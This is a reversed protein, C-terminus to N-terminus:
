QQPKMHQRFYDDTMVYDIISSEDCDEPERQDTLLSVAYNRVRQQSLTQLSQFPSLKQIPASQRCQVGHYLSAKLTSDLGPVPSGHPLAEPVRTNYGACTRFDEGHGGLLSDITFRRGDSSLTDGYCQPTSSYRLTDNAQCCASTDHIHNSTSVPKYAGCGDNSVRGEVVPFSPNYSHHYKYGQDPCFYRVHEGRSVQIPFRRMPVDVPFAARRESIGLRHSHGRLSSREIFDPLVRSAHGPLGCISTGSWGSSTSSDVKSMLTGDMIGRNYEVDGSLVVNSSIIANQMNMSGPFCKGKGDVLLTEKTEQNAFRVDKCEPHLPLPLFEELDNNTTIPKVAIDFIGKQADNRMDDFPRLGSSKSVSYCQRSPHTHRSELNLLGANEAVHQTAIDINNGSNNSAMDPCPRGRLALTDAAGDRPHQLSVVSSVVDPKSPSLHYKHNTQEQVPSTSTSSHESAFECSTSLDSADSTKCCKAINVDNTEDDVSTDCKRQTVAKFAESHISIPRTVDVHRTSPLTRLVVSDDDMSSSYIDATSSDECLATPTGGSATRQSLKVVANVGPASDTLPHKHVRDVSHSKHFIASACEGVSQSAGTEPADGIPRSEHINSADTEDLSLEASSSLREEEHKVPLHKCAPDSSKAQSSITNEVEAKMANSISEYRSESAEMEPIIESHDKCDLNGDDDVMENEIIVNNEISASGGDVDCSSMNGKDECHQKSTPNQEGELASSDQCSDDANDPQAETRLVRRTEKASGEDDSCHAMHGFFTREKAQDSQSLSKLNLPQSIDVPLSGVHAPPSWTRVTSCNFPIPAPATTTHASLRNDHHHAFRAAKLPHSHQVPNCRNGTFIRSILGSGIPLSDPCVTRYAMHDDVCPSASACDLQSLPNQSDIQSLKSSLNIAVHVPTDQFSLKRNFHAPTPQVQHSFPVIPNEGHTYQISASVSQTICSDATTFRAWCSPRPSDPIGHVSRSPAKAYQPCCSPQFDVSAVQSDVPAVQSDDPTVHSDVPTVQFEQNSDGCSSNPSVFESCHMNDSERFCTESAQRLPMSSETWQKMSYTDSAQLGKAASKVQVSLDVLQTTTVHNGLPLRTYNMDPRHQKEVDCRMSFPSRICQDSAFPPPGDNGSSVGSHTSLFNAHQAHYITSHIAINNSSIKSASMTDSTDKWGDSGICQTTCFDQNCTSIIVEKQQSNIFKLSNGNGVKNTGPEYLKPCTELGVSTQEPNLQFQKQGASSFVAQLTKPLSSPSHQCQHGRIQPLNGYTSQLQKHGKIDVNEEKLSISVTISPRQVNDNSVVVYSTSHLSSEPVDPSLFQNTNSSIKDQESLSPMHESNAYMQEPNVCVLEPSTCVQEPNACVKEPNAPIQEHNAYVQEPNVCVQEPNACVQEPNTYVQDPNTCAQEQNACVQEPNTCVQETIARFRQPKSSVQEPNSCVVEVKIYAQDRDFCVEEPDTCVQETIACVHQPKSCLQEQNTCVQEPNSCIQEPNFGVEPKSCVNEANSHDQQPNTCVKEPESCLQESNACVQEPNACVSGLDCGRSYPTTQQHTQRDTEACCEKSACNRGTLCNSHTTKMSSWSKSYREGQIISCSPMQVDKLNNGNSSSIQSLDAPYKHAPEVHDFLCQLKTISSDQGEEKAFISQMRGDDIKKNENLLFSDRGSKEFQIGKSYQVNENSSTSFEKQNHMLCRKDVPIQMGWRSTHPGEAIHLPNGFSHCLDALPSANYRCGEKGLYPHLFKGDATTTPMFGTGTVHTSFQTQNHMGQIHAHMPRFCPVPYDKTSSYPYLSPHQVYFPASFRDQSTVTHANWGQDSSPLTSQNYVPWRSGEDKVRCGSPFMVGGSISYRPRVQENNRFIYPEGIEPESVRLPMAHSFFKDGGRLRQFHPVHLPYRATPVSYPDYLFKSPIDSPVRGGFRTTLMPNLKRHQDSLGPFPFQPIRPHPSLLQCRSEENTFSDVARPSLMVDVSSPENVNEDGINFFNPISRSLRTSSTVSMNPVSCRNLNECSAALTSDTKGAIGVCNGKKNNVMRMVKRVKMLSGSFDLMEDEMDTSCCNPNCIANSVDDNSVDDNCVIPVNRCGTGAGASVQSTSVASPARADLTVAAEACESEVGAHTVSNGDDGHQFAKCSEYVVACRGSVGTDLDASCADLSEEGVTESLMNGVVKEKRDVICSAGEIDTDEDYDDVQVSGDGDRCLSDVVVESAARDRVDFIGGDVDTASDDEEDSKVIMSKRRRPRNRQTPQSPGSPVPIMGDDDSGSSIVRRKRFRRSPKVRYESGSASCTSHRGVYSSTRRRRGAAFGVGCVSDESVSVETDDSLMDTDTDLEWNRRLPKRATVKRRPRRSRAPEESDDDDSIVTLLDACCHLCRVVGVILMFM